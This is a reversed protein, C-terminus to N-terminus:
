KGAAGITQSASFKAELEQRVAEAV